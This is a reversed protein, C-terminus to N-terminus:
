KNVVRVSKNLRPTSLTINVETIATTNKQTISFLLLLYIFSVYKPRPGKNIINLKELNGYKQVFQRSVFRAGSAPRSFARVLAM